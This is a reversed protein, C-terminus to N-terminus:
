TERVPLGAAQWDNFGGANATRFGEAALIQAARNSRGGSRCYLILERDRNKALFPTWEARAGTLDSLALLTAPGAVGSEAWEDAERVDVLAAQGAAVLRAAEDPAVSRVSSSGSSFLRQLLSM